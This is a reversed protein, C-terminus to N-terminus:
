RGMPSEFVSSRLTARPRGGRSTDRWGRWGGPPVQDNPVQDEPDVADTAHHPHAVAVERFGPGLLTRVAVGLSLGLLVLAAIWLDYAGRAGIIITGIAADVAMVGLAGGDLAVSRAAQIQLQSVALLCFRDALRPTIAKTPMDLFSRLPQSPVRSRAWFGWSRLLHGLRAINERWSPPPIPPFRQTL